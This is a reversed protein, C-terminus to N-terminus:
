WDDDVFVPVVVKVNSLCPIQVDKKVALYELEEEDVDTRQSPVPITSKLKSARFKQMTKNRIEFPVLEKELKKPFPTVFSEDDYSMNRVDAWKSAALIDEIQDLKNWIETVGLFLRTDKKSPDFSVGYKKAFDDIQKERTEEIGRYKNKFYRSSAGSINGGGGCINTEGAAEKRVTNFYVSDDGSFNYYDAAFKRFRAFFYDQKYRNKQHDKYLEPKTCFLAILWQVEHDHFAAIDYKPRTSM